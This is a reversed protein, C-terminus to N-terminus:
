PQITEEVLFLEGGKAALYHFRDPGDFHIRGGGITLVTDYRNGEVGDVVVMQHDGELVVAALRQGEASFYMRNKILEYPKGERGSDNILWEGGSALEAQYVLRNGVPAFLPEGVDAYAPQNQGNLVIFKQPGSGAGCAVSKGDASFVPEALESYGPGERGDVVILLQNGVVARFAVHQGDPSFTLGSVARYAKGEKGDIVAFQENRKKIVYAWRRGDASLTLSDKVYDADLGGYLKSPKGDMVVVRRFSEPEAVYALHKGDKSLLVSKLEKFRLPHEQGDYFVFHMHDADTAIYGLQGGGGYFFNMTMLAPGHTRDIRPEGGAVSTERMQVREGVHEGWVVRKGDPTFSLSWTPSEQFVEREKGDIMLVYEVGGGVYRRATYAVHQSDASFVAGEHNAIFNWGQKEPVGDLILTEGQKEFNVVYASRKSDPSFHLTNAKVDAQHQQTLGDIVIGKDILHAFRRGDPSIWFHPQSSKYESLNLNGIQGLSKETAVRKFTTAAAARPRPAPSNKATPPAPNSKSISPAAPPSKASQAKQKAAAQQGKKLFAQVDDPLEVGPPLPPLGPILPEQAAPKGGAPKKGPTAKGPAAKKGSAEELAKKILDSVDPPLEIGAPLGPIAPPATKAPGATSGPQPEAPTATTNLVIRESGEISIDVESLGLDFYRVRITDGEKEFSVSGSTGNSERGKKETWGTQRFHERYMELTKAGSGTPLSYEWEKPSKKQLKAANAPLPVAFQIRMNKRDLEKKAIEAQAKAREEEAAVEEASQHRLQAHVTGSRASLDLALLDRQPNRFILFQTHKRDDVIARETTPKWGQRPLREQYFALLAATQEEPMEFSLRKQHDDYRLQAADPPAPLDASLLEASYRILTKGGEAPTTMIWSQIKMANRKFDHMTMEPQRPNPEIHGYPEWGAAVLLKRCAETTEAPTATTTYSAESPSPHFLKAGPPVPLQEVAVNGENVLVVDSWGARQPDGHSPSTSVAVLFGDKTFHSSEGSAHSHRGPLEKFGRKALEQQQFAFAQKLDGQASYMLMGLTQLNVQAGAMRPLTRLDLVRTAEEVTAPLAAKRAPPQAHAPQPMASLAEALLVLSFVISSRPASNRTM